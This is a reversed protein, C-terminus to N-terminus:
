EYKQKSSDILHDLDKVDVLVRRMHQGDSRPAPLRVAPLASADILGRVTWYSVGLYEAAQYLNLLRVNSKTDKKGSIPKM